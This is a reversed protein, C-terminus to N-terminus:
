LSNDLPQLHVFVLETPNGFRPFPATNSLGRSVVLRGEYLGGTYRPFLGQGPAFIGCGGFRWQGGHAHGALTLDIPLDRIFAPYYEPHHCLLLKVGCIAAFDSLFTQNPLPTAAFHGQKAGNRFGSNLGGITLNGITTWEDQLLTVGCARIQDDEEATTREHNGYTYVTPALAACAQLFPLTEPSDTLRDFLDGTIAIIDPEAKQLATLVPRTPHGHLDAIQAVALPAPINVSVTYHTLQM